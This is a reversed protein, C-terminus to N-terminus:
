FHPPPEKPLPVYLTLGRLLLAASLFWARSGVPCHHVSFSFLWTHLLYQAPLHDIFLWTRPPAETVTPRLSLIPKNSSLSASPQAVATKGHLRWVRTHDGGRKFRSSVGEIRKCVSLQRSSQGKDVGTQIGVTWGISEHKGTDEPPSGGLGENNFFFCFFFSRSEFVYDTLTIEGGTVTEEIVPAIFSAPKNQFGGQSLWGTAKVRRLVEILRFITQTFTLM